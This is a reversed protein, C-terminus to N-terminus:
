CLHYQVTGIFLKTSYVDLIRKAAKQRDHFLLTKFIIPNRGSFIAIYGTDPDPRDEGLIWSISISPMEVPTITEVISEDPNRM